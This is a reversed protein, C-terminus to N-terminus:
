FDEDDDGFDIDFDEDGGFDDVAFDSEKYKNQNEKDKWFATNFNLVENVRNYKTVVSGFGAVDEGGWDDEEEIEEAEIVAENRVRGMVEILQYPKVKKKINKALKTLGDSRMPLPFTLDVSTGDKKTIVRLDIALYKEKTEPDTEVESGLYVGKQQFTSMEEFKEDKFDIEEKTVFIKQIDFDMRTVTKGDQGEFSQPNTRAQIFVQDGNKFKNFIENVADYSTYTTVEKEGPAKIGVGILKAGDEREEFRDEWPVRIVERNEGDQPFFMAEDGKYGFLGVPIENGESTKISFSIKKCRDNDFDDKISEEKLKVIEGKFKAIGRTEQFKAM